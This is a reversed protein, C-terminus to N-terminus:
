AVALIYGHKEGISKLTGRHGGFQVHDDADETIESAIADIDEQITAKSLPDHHRLGLVKFGNSEAICRFLNKDAVAILELVQPNPMVGEFQPDKPLPSTHGHGGGQVGLGFWRMLQNFAFSMLNSKKMYDDYMSNPDQPPPTEDLYAEPGMPGKPRQKMIKFIDLQARKAKEAQSKHGWDTYTDILHLLRNAVASASLAEPNGPNDIDARDRLDKLERQLGRGYAEGKYGKKGQKSAPVEEGGKIKSADDWKKSRPRSNELGGRLEKDVEMIPRRSENLMRKYQDSYM